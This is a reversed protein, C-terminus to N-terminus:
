SSASVALVLVCRNQALPCGTLEFKKAIAISAQQNSDWFTFHLTVRM